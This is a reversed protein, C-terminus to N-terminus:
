AAADTSQLLYYLRLADIQAVALEECWKAKQTWDSENGSPATADFARRM